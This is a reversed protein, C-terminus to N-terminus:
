FVYIVTFYVSTYSPYSEGGDGGPLKYGCGFGLDRGCSFDCHVRSIFKCVVVMSKDYLNDAFGRGYSSVVFRSFLCECIQFLAFSPSVESVIWSVILEALLCKVFRRCHRRRIFPKAFGRECNLVCYVRTVPMECIQLLAKIKCFAQRFRARLELCLLKSLLASSLDAVISDDWLFRPLGRECNLVCYRQYCPVECIQSLATM